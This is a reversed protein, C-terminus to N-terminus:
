LYYPTNKIIDFVFNSNLYQHDVTQKMNSQFCKIWKQISNFVKSFKWIPDCLTSENKFHSTFMQQYHKCVWLEIKWVIQSYYPLSQYYWDSVNKRINLSDIKMNKLNMKFTDQNQCPDPCVDFIVSDLFHHM